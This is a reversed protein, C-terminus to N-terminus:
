SGTLALENISFDIMKQKIIENFSPNIEYGISKRGNSLSVKGTTGTDTTTSSTSSSGSGGDSSSTCGSVMILSLLLVSFSFLFSLRKEWVRKSIFILKDM